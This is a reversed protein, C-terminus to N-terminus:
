VLISGRSPHHEVLVCRGGLDDLDHQDSCVSNCLSVSYLKPGFLALYELNTMTM